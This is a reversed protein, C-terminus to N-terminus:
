GNDPGSSTLPTATHFSRGRMMLGGGLPQRFGGGEFIEASQLVGTSNFGGTILVRDGSLLTASHQSRPVAMPGVLTSSGDAPDYLEASASYITGESTYREGGVILVKGTSLKTATFQFRQELMQGNTSLPPNAFADYMLVAGDYSG